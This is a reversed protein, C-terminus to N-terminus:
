QLCLKELTIKDMNELLKIGISFLDMGGEVTWILIGKVNIPTKSNPPFIELNITSGLHFSVGTHFRVRLGKCSANTITCEEWRNNKNDELICRARLKTCFRAYKRVIKM